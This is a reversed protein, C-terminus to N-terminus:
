VFGLAPLPDHTHLRSYFGFELLFRSGFSAVSSSRLIITIAPFSGAVSPLAGFFSIALGM